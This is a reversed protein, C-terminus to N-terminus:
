CPTEREDLTWGYQELQAYTEDIRQRTGADSAGQTSSLRFVRGYAAGQIIIWPNMYDEPFGEGAYTVTWTAWPYWTTLIRQIEDLPRM